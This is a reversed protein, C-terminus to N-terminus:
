GKRRHWNLVGPAILRTNRCDPCFSGSQSPIEPSDEASVVFNAECVGCDAVWDDDRQEKIIPIEEVRKWDVVPENWM